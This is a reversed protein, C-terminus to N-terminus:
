DESEHLHSFDLFPFELKAIEEAKREIGSGGGYSRGVTSPAHGTLQDGIKEQIGADDCADKFTHRFSHFATVLTKAGVRPLLTRNFARVVGTNAYEGKRDRRWDPFLRRHGAVAIRDRYPIIGMKLLEPHIPVKRESGDTKLKQKESADDFSRSIFLFCWRGNNKEIDACEMQGIEAARAGTYLAILPVWFFSDKEVDPGTFTNDTFIQILQRQTFSTRGSKGRNSKGTDIQVGIAPNDPIAHRKKYFQLLAKLHSLWKGNITAPSLTEYPTERRSNAEATEVIKMSKFRLTYRTPVTLLLDAYETMMRPTIDCIRVPGAFEEFMRVAVGHEKRTANDIQKHKNFTELLESLPKLGEESLARESNRVPAPKAPSSSLITDSPQGLFNGQNREAKRRIIEREVRALTKCIRIYDDTFRSSGDDNHLRNGDADTLYKEIPLKERAIVDDAAWGMFGYEGERSYRENANLSTGLFNLNRWDEHMERLDPDLEAETREDTDVQLERDYFDRAFRMLSDDSLNRKERLAMFEDLVQVRLGAGRREAERRDATRLSKWIEKKGGYANILDEPIRVRLYWNASGNRKVIHTQRSM